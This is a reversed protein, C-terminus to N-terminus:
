APLRLTLGPYVQAPDSLMPQNAEFIRRYQSADGYVCVAISALTDGAQVTYLRSRRTRMSLPADLLDVVQCVGQVNGCSLIIKERLIQDAVPGALTVTATGADFAVVLGASALQRRQLLDILAQEVERELRHFDDQMAVAASAPDVLQEGADGRFSILRM